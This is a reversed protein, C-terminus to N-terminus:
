ANRCPRVGGQSTGLTKKNPASQGSRCMGSRHADAGILSIFPIVCAGTSLCASFFFLELKPTEKLGCKQKPRRVRQQRRLAAQKRDVHGSRAARGHQVTEPVFSRRHRLIVSAHGDQVVGDPLSPIWGVSDLSFRIYRLLRNQRPDVRSEM